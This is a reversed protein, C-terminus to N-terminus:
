ATTFKNPLKREEQLLYIDLSKEQLINIETTMTLQLKYENM